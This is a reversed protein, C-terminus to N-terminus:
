RWRCRLSIMAGIARVDARTGDIDIQRIGSPRSITAAGADTHLEGLDTYRLTLDLDLSPTLHLATGAGATWAFGTYTGGPVVTTATNAIAPFAYTVDGLHIRAAGAGATIFPRVRWTAPGLDVFASALLSYAEGHATVPQEGAVGLFNSQANLTLDPRATFALEARLHPGLHKGISLEWATSQGLDGRADLPRGDNGNGCGFLAAPATSTCDDDRLTLPEGRERGAGIRIYAHAAFASVTFLLTFTLSLATKM